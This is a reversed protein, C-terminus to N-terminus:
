VVDRFAEVLKSAVEHAAREDDPYDLERYLRTLREVKDIALSSSRLVEAHALFFLSYGRSVEIGNPSLRWTRWAFAFYPEVM